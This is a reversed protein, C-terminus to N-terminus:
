MEERWAKDLVSWMLMVGHSVLRPSCFQKMEAAKM